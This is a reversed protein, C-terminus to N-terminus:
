VADEASDAGKEAGESLGDALADGAKEAGKSLGEELAKGAKEGGEKAAEELKDLGSTDVELELGISGANTRDEAM